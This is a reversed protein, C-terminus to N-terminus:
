ILIGFSIGIIPLSLEEVVRMSKLAKQELEEEKQHIWSQLEEDEVSNKLTPNRVDGNIKIQSHAKYPKTIGILTLNTYFGQGM